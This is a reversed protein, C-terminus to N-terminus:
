NAVENSKQLACSKLATLDSELHKRIIEDADGDAPRHSIYEVIATHYQLVVTFTDSPLGEKLSALVAAIARGPVHVTCRHVQIFLISVTLPLALVPDTTEELQASLVKRHAFLLAKEIKKDLKRLRIGIEEACRELADHFKELSKGEVAEALAVVCQGVNGRLSKAMAMRQGTHLAGDQQSESSERLVGEPDEADVLQHELAESRLVLDAIETAVTRLLHRQLIALTGTDEVFVDLGKSFLQMQGWVRDLNEQLLDRRKKRDEAGATFAARKSALFAEVVTPRIHVALARAMSGEGEGERDEILGAPAGVMDPYWELIRTAMEVENMLAEDEMATEKGSVKKGGVSGTGSVGGKSGKGGKKKGKASRGGTKEYSEEEEPDQIIKASSGTGGGKKGGKSKSNTQQPKTAPPGEDEGSLNGDNDEEGKSPLPVTKKTLLIQKAKARALKDFREFISRVLSQSVICTEALILVSGEKEAEHVGKCHGILLVVDTVTLLSPVHAMIDCWSSGTVAEESVAEIQDVLSPHVFATELAIGETYKQHLYQKPSAVGLKKLTEYGVYGNQSYFAEVSERQSRAFISPTWSSGGGRMSGLAVGEAVCENLVSSFLGGDVGGPGVLGEGQLQVVIGSLSTTTTSSSVARLAGRVIAKIRKVYAPTYLQGGELKGHILSGMRESISTRLVDSSVNFRHALEALSVQGTEQLTEEVEEAVGDWYGTTLIEGQVLSTKLDTAIIRQTEREVYFLDVGLISALDVLSTRKHKKIEDVMERYLREQTIYEKGNVSHLLEEDLLERERLKNVLEVINRESLRVSSKVEQAAFFQAQLLRLEDDM